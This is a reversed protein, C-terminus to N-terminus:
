TGSDLRERLYDLADRNLSFFHDEGIYDVYGTRELVDRIQKKVRTFYVDVDIDRLREILDRLIQEGTADVQNIGTADVILYRLEPFRAVIELVKDEFYSSDGFYLRGDFRIIVIEQDLELGYTDADRLVGDPHRARCSIRPRMTRFLYTILSLVVGILIGLHLAPALMLTCLFTVVAAVGDQPQVQWATIIPKIKVLDAVAIIIIAGLTAQPLHYLLPTFWLLTIMVALSTVVSAFGTRAGSTFNVASRSFSGSVAYSQFFSGALNAMGQGILEQNIDIQQKTKTAITKAIAMAEMLGVFTIAVAGMVLHPVIRLDIVPAKFSPLGRPIEGVVAGSYGALWSVLTTTVVAILVHPLRGSARNHLGLLIATALSAMGLTEWHAGEAAAQFLHWVTQYHYREIEISVGLIHHLQSTAIILAGANTFGVVVPNSLLNVLVGLRLAGMCIRIMGVMLALLISYTIFDATGPPALLQVTGVSILSAMAVPGTALQRSSGFLAAVAPPLFAAYLGYFAPLGAMQAYAMSQPVLVMAVTIGAIVDARLVARDRLEGIWRTFPRYPLLRNLIDRLEETSKM